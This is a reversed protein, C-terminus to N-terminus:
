VKVHEKGSKNSLIIASIIILSGLIFRLFDVAENFFFLSITIGFPIKLNNFTSLIGSSVKVSGYNWLFFGIGSAIIGLYLIVLVQSFTFDISVTRIMIAAFLISVAAAGSYMIFMAANDNIEQIRTKIRKYNIQGVAFCINSFQVLMFGIWLDSSSLRSYVIIGSGIVSLASFLLFRLSLSKNLWDYYLTVYIPTLITFLVVEHAKLFNFSLIYTEYMLGFQIAGNIFLILTNKKDFNIKRYFPIFLIMSLFLRMFSLLYPDIGALNYKILGFSFSWILTALFLYIM